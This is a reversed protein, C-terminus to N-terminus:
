HPGVSHPEQFDRALAPDFVVTEGNTKVYYLRVRVSCDRYLRQEIYPFGTLLGEAKLREILWGALLVRHRALGVGEHVFVELAIRQDPKIDERTLFAHFRAPDNHLVKCTRTALARLCANEFTKSATDVQLRSALAEYINELSGSKDAVVVAEHPIIGLLISGAIPTQNGAIPHRAFYGFPARPGDSPSYHASQTIASLRATLEFPPTLLEREFTSFYFPIATLWPTARDHSPWSVDRSTHQSRPRIWAKLAARQNGWVRECASLFKPILTSCVTSM